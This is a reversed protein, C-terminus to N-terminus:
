ATFKPDTPRRRYPPTKGRTGARGCSLPPTRGVSWRHTTPVVGFRAHDVKRITTPDAARADLSRTTMHSGWVEGDVKETAVGANAVPGTHPHSPLVEAQRVRGLVRDVHQPFCM